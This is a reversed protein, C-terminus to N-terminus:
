KLYQQIEEDTAGTSPTGATTMAGRNGGSLINYYYNITGDPDNEFNDDRQAASLAKSMLASDGGGLQNYLPLLKATEGTFFEAPTTGISTLLMDIADKSNAGSKKAEIMWEPDSLLSSVTYYGPYKLGNQMNENYRGVAKNLLDATAANQRESVTDRGSTETNYKNVQASNLSKRLEYDRDSNRADYTPQGTVPDTGTLGALANRGAMTYEGTDPNTGYTNALSMNNSFEQQQEASMDKGYQNTADSLGLANERNKDYLDLLMKNEDAAQRSMLDGYQGAFESAGLAYNENVSTLADNRQAELDAYIPQYSETLKRRNYNAAGSGGYKALDFGQREKANKLNLGTKTMGRSFQNEINRMMQNTKTDYANQQRELAAFQPQYSQGVIGRVMGRNSNLTDANLNGYATAKGLMTAKSPDIYARNNAPNISFDGTDERYLTDGMTFSRKGVDGGLWNVQQGAAEGFARASIMKDYDITAIEFV